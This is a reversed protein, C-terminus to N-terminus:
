VNTLPLTLIFRAGHHYTTDLVLDGGLLHALVRSLPLGLGMGAASADVKFFREFIKDKLSPDIGIGTDSICIAVKEDHDIAHCELFIRGKSTYEAANSLIHVLIQQVRRPDTFTDLNRSSDEGTVDDFVIEVGPKLLPRVVEVATEAVNRLSVLERRLSVSDSDIEAMNLVDDMIATLYEANMQVQDAYRELYPKDSADTCDVILRSYEVLANLPLSVERGMTKIFDTKFQNASQARDRAQTLEAQSHRLSESETQLADNSEALTKSLRNSVRYMRVLLVVLVLMAILAVGCIILITRQLTSENERMDSELNSYDEKYRYTDYIVQLERYREDVRSDLLSDQALSYRRLAWLATPKDGVADAAKVLYRLLKYRRAANSPNDIQAKIIPLAEAYNETAMLYYIDALRRNRLTSGARPNAKALAMAHQYYDEIVEPSLHEWNGLLRVYTQYRTGDYNRYPRGAAAYATELSDCVQLLKLDAAIAQETEDADAYAQSAQILFSNRISYASSPLKDILEGLQEVYGLLVEGHSQRAIYSCVAHLLQIKEYIDKPPDLTVRKLLRGFRSDISDPNDNRAYYTNRKFNIFTETEKKDDSEPYAKLKALLMDLTDIRSSYGNARHRIMELALKEDKSKEALEYLQRSYKNGENTQSQRIDFINSIIFISDQVTTAESLKRDLNELVDAYEIADARSNLPILLCFALM